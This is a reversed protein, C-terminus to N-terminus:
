ATRVPTYTRSRARHIATPSSELTRAETASEYSSDRDSQQSQADVMFLAAYKPLRRRTIMVIRVSPRQLLELMAVTPPRVGFSITMVTVLRAIARFFRDM